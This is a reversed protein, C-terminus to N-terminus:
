TVASIKEVNMEVEPWRRQPFEFKERSMQPKGHRMQRVSGRLIRSRCRGYKWLVGCLLTQSLGPAQIKARVLIAHITSLPLHGMVYTMASDQMRVFSVAQTSAQGTSQM